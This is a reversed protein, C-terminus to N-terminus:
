TVSMEHGTSPMSKAGCAAPLLPTNLTALRINQTVSGALGGRKGKSPLLSEDKRAAGEKRGDPEGREQGERCNM